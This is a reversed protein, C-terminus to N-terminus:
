QKRAVVIASYGLKYFPYVEGILFDFKGINLILNGFFKSLPPRKKPPTQYVEPIVSSLIHIGSKELVQLGYLELLLRMEKFTYTKYPLDVASDFRIYEYRWFRIDGRSRTRVASALERLSYLLGAHWKNDYELTVIGGNRCVRAMESIAREYAHNGKGDPGIGDVLHGMVDGYACVYDVSSSMLPIRTADGNMFEVNRFGRARVKHKAKRLLGEVLDLAFVKKAKQAFELTQLGTGCGVDLVIGNQWYPLFRSLFHQTTRKSNQYFPMTADYLDYEDSMLNYSNVMLPRHNEDVSRFVM